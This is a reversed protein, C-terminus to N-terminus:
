TEFKFMFTVRELLSSRVVGDFVANSGGDGMTVEGATM